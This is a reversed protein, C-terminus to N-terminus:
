RLKFCDSVTYIRGELVTRVNKRLAINLIFDYTPPDHTYDNDGMNM